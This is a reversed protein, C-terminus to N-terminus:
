CDGADGRPTTDRKLIRGPPSSRWGRHRDPGPPRRSAEPIAIRRSTSPL